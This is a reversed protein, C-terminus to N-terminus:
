EQGDPGLVYLHHLENGGQDHTYLVRDDNPFYSVAVTTDTTSRTVPTAPGGAVPASYVNFIGTENSSYLIRKEDASFSAGSLSVTAMFQEITYQKSPRAPAQAAATASFLASVSLGLALTRSFRTLMVRM